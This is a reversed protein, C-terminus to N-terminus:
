QYAPNQYKKKAESEMQMGDIQGQPIAILTVTRTIMQHPSYAFLPGTVRYPLLIVQSGKGVM